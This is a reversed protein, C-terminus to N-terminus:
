YKKVQKLVNVAETYSIKEVPGSAILQLRDLVHKDVRKAVFKLDDASSELISRSVFKLFDVACEM